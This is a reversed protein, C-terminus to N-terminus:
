RARGKSADWSSESPEPHEPSGPSLRESSPEEQRQDLIQMAMQALIRILRSDIASTASAPEM